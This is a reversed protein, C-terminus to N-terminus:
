TLVVIGTNRVPIEPTATVRVWYDYIGSTAAGNYLFQINGDVDWTAADWDLAGPETGDAMLAVEVTTNTVDESATVANRIYEVSDSPLVLLGQVGHAEDIGLPRGIRITLPSPRVTITATGTITISGSRTTSGSVTVADIADITVSAAKFLTHNLLRVLPYNIYSRGRIAM